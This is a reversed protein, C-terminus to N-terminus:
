ALGLLRRRVGRELAADLRAEPRQQGRGDGRAMVRGLNADRRLVVGLEDPREMVVRREPELDQGVEGADIGALRHLDHEM